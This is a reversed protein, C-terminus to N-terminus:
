EVVKPVVFFGGERAPANRLVAEADGGESVIDERMKLKMAVAATMPPVGATEVENLQEVFSLIRNLEDAMPALQAEDLRLRALRAIKKVSATDLSM